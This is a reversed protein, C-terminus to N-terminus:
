VPLPADCRRIDFIKHYDCAIKAHKYVSQKCRDTLIYVNAYVPATCLGLENRNRSGSAHKLSYRPGAAVGVIDSIRSCFLQDDGAVVAVSFLSALLCVLLLVM